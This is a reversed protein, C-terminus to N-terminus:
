KGCGACHPVPVVVKLENHTTVAHFRREVAPTDTPDLVLKKVAVEGGPKLIPIRVVVERKIPVTEYVTVKVTKVVPCLRHETRCKGTCPDIVTVPKSENCVVQEEVQRAQLRLETVIQKEERFDLVPGEPIRCVEVARLKWDPLTTARERPVLLVQTHPISKEIVPPACHAAPGDHAMEVAPPPLFRAPPQNEVPRPLPEQPTPEVPQPPPLISPSQRAFAPVPLWLVLLVLLPYRHAMAEDKFDLPPHQSSTQRGNLWTWRNRDPLKPGAVAFRPFARMRDIFLASSRCLRDRKGSRAIEGSMKQKM